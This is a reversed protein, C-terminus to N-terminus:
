VVKAPQRAIPKPKPMRRTSRARRNSVVNPVTMALAPFVLIGGLVIWDALGVAAGIAAPQRYIVDVPSFLYNL